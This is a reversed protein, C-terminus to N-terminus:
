LGEIPKFFLAALLVNARAPEKVVTESGNLPQLMEM